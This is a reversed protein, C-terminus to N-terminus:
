SVCARSLLVALYFISCDAIYKPLSDRSLLQITNITLLSIAGKETLLLRWHHGVWTSIYSRAMQSEDYVIWDLFKKCTTGLRWEIYKTNKKRGMGWHCCTLLFTRRLGTVVAVHIEIRFWVLPVKWCISSGSLFANWLFKRFIFAVETVPLSSHSLTCQSLQIDLLFGQLMEIRWLCRWVM